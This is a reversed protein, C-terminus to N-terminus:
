PSTSSTLTNLAELNQEAPAFHPELELSSRWATRADDWRQQYAAVIGLNTLTRVNAPDLRKARELAELAQEHKGIRAYALGLGNWAMVHDPRSAVVQQFDNLALDPADARLELIALQYRADLDAPAIRLLHQLRERAEVAKGFRLLARILHRLFKPNEPDLEQAKAYAERARYAEGRLDDLQGLADHAAAFGPNLELAQRLASRARDFTGQLAYLCGLDYWISADGPALALAEQYAALAQALDGRQYAEWGQQLAPQAPDKPSPHSSAAAAPVQDRRQPTSAEVAASLIVIVAVSATLQPYRMMHSSLAELIGCEQSGGTMISCQRNMGCSSGGVIKSVLRTQMAAPGPARATTAGAQNPVNLDDAGQLVDERHEAVM